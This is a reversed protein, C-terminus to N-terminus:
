LLGYCPAVIIQILIAAFIHVAAFGPNKKYINIIAQTFYGCRIYYVNFAQPIIDPYM